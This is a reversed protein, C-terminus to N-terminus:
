LEASFFYAAVTAGAGLALMLLVLWLVTRRKRPAIPYSGRQSTAKRPSRADPTAERKIKTTPKSEPTAKRPKAREVPKPERAPKGPDPQTPEPPKDFNTGPPVIIM